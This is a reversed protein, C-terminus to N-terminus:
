RYFGGKHEQFQKYTMDTKEIGGVGTVIFTGRSLRVTRIGRRGHRKEFPRYRVEMCGSGDCRVCVVAVGEPEAFGCYLGTGHCADCEAKIIM